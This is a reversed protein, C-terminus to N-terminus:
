ILELLYVKHLRKKCTHSPAEDIAVCVKVYAGCSHCKWESNPKYRLPTNEQKPANITLHSSDTSASPAQLCSPCLRPKRGRAKPRKWQLNCQICTLEDFEGM